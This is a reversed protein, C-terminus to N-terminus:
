GFVSPMEEVGDTLREELEETALDRPLCASFKLKDIAEDEVPTRLLAPDGAALEDLARELDATAAAGEIRIRFNDPREAGLGRARLGAAIAANAGLGAFTWWSLGTADTAIVTGEADLWDFEARQEALKSEARKSLRGAPAAGCLVRKIAQCLAFHLPQGSGLWRSRGGDPAPEVYAIRDDWDIHGVVWSRGALLLVPVEQHRMAFTIADVEGLHTRGHRVAIMPNSTFVSFLELFNKRGFSAEGEGGLWLMGEDDALIGTDLMHGQVREVTGAEMAAFGPMRGVWEWWTRRGIGGQQLCLAMLQQALIHYPRAPPVVPEVFGEGWLRLLGLARLFAEDGTELFLCNRAIGARRGTRGLRQLFSAVTRPADIQIVRELDGVDIGLELTSTAVIVCNTQAAFATEARLREERGLSSHSVYTEVGRRRLNSALSEVRARSDCFVLRKEGHHLRSIVLGANELTGVYDVEVEAAAPGEAAPAIVRRPGECSGALWQLLSEPSGVTASLGVRQVERGALRSIRELVSLLHWGRDDGAFAHIEDVVIARLNGFVREKEHRRSVLIVELSEPTTLLIDPPDDVIRRRASDGVDGHWLGVRRGVFGGYQELRVHLNNLLARLPCVYLVGLGSWDEALMRSLLPFFAAETKGGATPALLLAHEGALLPEITQEQLPRLAPWGLTNVIHHQLAPHLRDFPTM